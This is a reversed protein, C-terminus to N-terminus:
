RVAAMLDDYMDEVTSIVQSAASYAQQAVIMRTFEDATDVNSTEVANGEITGAGGTGAIHVTYTGSTASEAYINSTMATLGDYNSFTAIAIKYITRSEGNDYSAVVSGDDDIEIGTLSGYELGNQSITGVDLYPDDSGSSFQHLGDAAGVTGLDFTISSDSAGTTWGTVSITASGSTPSTLNGDSDFEITIPGGGVTGSTTSTDSSLTPDTYTMSWENAATKEFTVELTHSVGLSDIVELSTSFTDNIEADAPLNATISAETTASAIGSYRNVNIAELSTDNANAVEGDADTAWGMLYYGNSTLYGDDDTDFEGNRTFYRQGDDLDSCVVFMGNGDIAMDTSSDSEEILGQQSVTQSATTGVGGSAYYNGYMQETVLTSFRAHTAKYGVTSSNSINDSVMALAQSQAKLGSVASNLAGSLSM